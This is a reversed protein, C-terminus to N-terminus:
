SIRLLSLEREILEGVDWKKKKKLWGIRPSRRFGPERQGLGARSSTDQNNLKCSTSIIFQLFKTRFIREWLKPFGLITPPSFM